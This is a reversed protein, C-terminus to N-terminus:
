SAGADDESAHVEEDASVGRYPRLGAADRIRQIAEERRKKEKERQVPCNWPVGERAEEWNLWSRGLPQDHGLATLRQELMEDYGISLCIAARPCVKCAPKAM